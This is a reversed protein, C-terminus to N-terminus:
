THSEVAQQEFLGRARELDAPTDIECWPLGGTSPLGFSFGSSALLNFAATDYEQLRGAMLLLEIRKALPMVAHAAIHALGTWEGAAEALPIAKSSKAFRGDTLCVKMAEADVAGFDTLLQIDAAHRDALLRELLAEHFIVDAHLYVTDEGAIYPLALWLSVMNNTEAFLSNMIFHARGRLRSRIQQHEFGVVVAIDSVGAQDLLDVAREILTREGIELLCKPTRITLPYLRSSRGAAAIIAKM